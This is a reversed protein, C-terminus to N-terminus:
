FGRSPVTHRVQPDGAKPRSCKPPWQAGSQRRALKPTSRNLFAQGRPAWACPISNHVADLIEKRTVRRGCNMACAELLAVIENAPLHAHLQRAVRFLWAHVGEGAPPPSAILDQLFPPLKAPM